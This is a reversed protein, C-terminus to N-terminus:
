SILNRNHHIATFRQKYDKIETKMWRDWFTFYLGYNGVFQEHHMNHHTSTTKFSLIPLRLWQRPYIEYGFHAIVNNLLDLTQWLFLMPWWIPILMPLLLFPLFEILNEFPHFSFITLPSPDTSKHHTKHVWRYIKPHHMFRHTWYFYADYFFILFFIQTTGWFSGYAHFDSYLKMYGRKDLLTICATLLGALLISGVSFLIDHRFFHARGESRPQIRRWRWVKKLFIWVFVFVIIGFILYLVANFFVEKLSFFLFDNM